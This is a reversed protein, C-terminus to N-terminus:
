SGPGPDQDGDDKLLWRTPVMRRLHLHATSSGGGMFTLGVLGLADDESPTPMEAAARHPFYVTVDYRLSDPLRGDADLRAFRDAEPAGEPPDALVSDGGASRRLQSRLRPAYDPSGCQVFFVDNGPTDAQCAFGNTGARLLVLAGDRLQWVEAGARLPRPLPAVADRITAQDAGSQAQLPLLGLLPHFALLPLLVTLRPM